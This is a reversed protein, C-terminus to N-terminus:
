SRLPTRVVSSLLLLVHGRDECLKGSDNVEYFYHESKWTRAVCFFSQLIISQACKEMRCSCPSWSAEPDSYAVGLFIRLYELLRRLLLMEWSDLVRYEVPPRGSVLVFLFCHVMNGLAFLAVRLAAFFAFYKQFGGYVSTHRRCGLEAVVLSQGAQWQTLPYVLLFVAGALVARAGSYSSVLQVGHGEGRDGRSLM